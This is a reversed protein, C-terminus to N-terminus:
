FIKSIDPNKFINVINQKIKNGILILDTSAFYQYKETIFDYYKFNGKCYLYRSIIKPNDLVPNLNVDTVYDTKLKIQCIDNLSERDRTRWTPIILLFTVKDYINVMKAMKKITKNIIKVTFPPNVFFLGDIFQTDFFNGICGFYKELDYFLGCYYKSTHNLFSGFCEFINDASGFKLYKESPVSGMLGNMLGFFTYRNLLAWVLADFSVYKEYSKDIIQNKIRTYNSKSIKHTINKYSIHLMNDKNKLSVDFFKDNIKNIQSLLSNYDNKSMIKQKKIKYIVVPDLKTTKFKYSELLDDISIKYKQILDKLLNLRYIEKDLNIKFNNAKSLYKM